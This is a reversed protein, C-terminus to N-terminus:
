DARRGVGAVMAWEHAVEVSGVIACGQAHEDELRQREVLYRRRAYAVVSKTDHDGDRLRRQRHLGVDWRGRVGATGRMAQLTDLALDTVDQLRVFPGSLQPRHEPVQLRRRQVIFVVPEARNNWRKEAVIVNIQPVWAEDRWGVALELQTQNIIEENM